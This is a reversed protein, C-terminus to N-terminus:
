YGAQELWETVRSQKLSDIRCKVRLSPEPSQQSHPISRVCHALKRSLASDFAPLRSPTAVAVTRGHGESRLVADRLLNRIGQDTFKYSNETHITERRM